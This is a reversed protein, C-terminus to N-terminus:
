NVLPPEASVPPDPEPDGDGDGEGDGEGDDAAPVQEGALQAAVTLLVEHVHELTDLRGCLSYYEDESVPSMRALAAEVYGRLRNPAELGAEFEGPERQAIAAAVYGAPAFRLGTPLVFRWAAPAQDLDEWRGGLHHRVVEGFYAAATTIVLEVTAAQELPVSRLYHDVLPLTDSDYAPAVGLAREVYAVAQDAFERITSAPETM